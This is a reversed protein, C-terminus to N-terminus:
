PEAAAAAAHADAVLRGMVTLGLKHQLWEAFRPFLNWLLLLPRVPMPNVIVEPLDRRIARVVAAAVAEPRGAGLLFPAPVGGNQVHQQYMGSTRTYGPCVASASVPTGRAQLSLRLSRTFGVLGHKTAGYAENFAIGALGALSAVNVIHGRRRELMGPLVLRSLLMPAQLNVALARQIEDLKLSHYDSSREIGANNILLDVPGLEAEARSVLLGLAALDGVDAAVCVCRVGLSEIGSRVRELDGASRAVLMLNVGRAALARAIYVGLGRSAGTIIGNRGQLRRM